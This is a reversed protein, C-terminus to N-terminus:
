LLEASAIPFDRISFGMVINQSLEDLNDEEYLTYKRDTLRRSFNFICTTVFLGYINRMDPFVEFIKSKSIQIQGM